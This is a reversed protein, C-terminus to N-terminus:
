EKSTLVKEIAQIVEESEPKARSGFRAVIKGEPDVLFKNFNWSIDGSFEPNTEKETLFKYLPDIDKGKVSIKSFMPFTVNYNLSCFQKIEENTGPEQGLFNNAPFGLIVFGRDKYQSYVKQLGEYQSTFGCKSAVNVILIAKGKFQELKVDKGDIDKVTFDYISKM